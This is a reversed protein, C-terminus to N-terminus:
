SEIQEPFFGPVLITFTTGQGLESTATVSGRHAEVIEKVLSLGLGTGKHRRTSGGEVQYFREFIRGIKEEPIGEGSDAVEIHVDEGEARLRLTIKGGTPTFKFANSVLNDFVRRLHTSDGRIWPVPEAIEAELTIGLDEARM